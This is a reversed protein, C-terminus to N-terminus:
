FAMGLKAWFAYADAAARNYGFEYSAGAGVMFPIKFLNMMYGIGGFITHSFIEPTEAVTTDINTQQIWSTTGPRLNSGDTAFATGVNYNAAAIGIINDQWSGEKLSVDESDKWFLNYGLDICLKKHKYSFDLVADVLSGPKVDVDKTLVNAAPFLGRRGNYGLLYYHSLIHKNYYQATFIDKLGLTRKEKAEFQYRYNLKAHMKICQDEDHWLRGFAEFGGGFAWHKSGLRPEWLHEALPRDSTPILMTMNLAFFANEKDLIKLGLESELNEIGTRSRADTLKAYKLPAQQNTISSRTLYSGDFLNRLYINEGGVAGYAGTYSVNLDQKVYKWVINNNLYLGKIVNGLCIHTDIRTGYSQLNPRFTITGDLSNAGGSAHLLLNNEVDVQNVGALTSNGVTVHNHGNAGFVEGLKKKSQTDKYFGTVAWKTAIKDERAKEDPMLRNYTTISAALNRQDRMVLETRQTTGKAYINAALVSAAIITLLKKKM